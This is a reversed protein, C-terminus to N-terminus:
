FTFRVALGLGHGRIRARTAALDLPLPERSGDRWVVRGTGRGTRVEGLDTYRWALELTTRRTLVAAVGATAVWAVDAHRDGPVTTTTRPFTMRTAGIRTRVAGAGGGVFPALPGIVPVDFTPLDANLVLLVSLTSLNAEVSQKRAPDLFNTRGRFALRPRYGFRAELRLSPAVVRGIGLELRGATGFDGISRYPAGDGGTGCGYLAAPSMSSCDRDSFVAEAAWDLGAGARVYFSGPDAAACNLSVGAAVIAASLCRRWVQPEVRVIRGFRGQHSRAIQEM